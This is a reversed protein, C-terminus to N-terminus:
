ECTVCDNRHNETTGGCESCDEEREAGCSACPGEDPWAHGEKACREKGRYEKVARVIRFRKPGETGVELGWKKRSEESKIMDRLDRDGRYGILGWETRISRVEGERVWTGLSHIYKQIIEKQTM